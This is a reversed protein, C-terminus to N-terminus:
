GSGIIGRAIHQDLGRIATCASLWLEKLGMELEHRSRCKLCKCGSVMLSTIESAQSQSLEDAIIIYYRPRHYYEDVHNHMNKREDATMTVAECIVDRVLRLDAMKGSIQHLNRTAFNQLRVNVFYFQPVPFEWKKVLEGLNIDNEPLEDLIQEITVEEDPFPKWTEPKSRPVGTLVVLHVRKGPGLLIEQPEVKRM